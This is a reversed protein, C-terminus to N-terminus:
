VERHRDGPGFERRGGRCQGRLYRLLLPPPHQRQLRLFPLCAPPWPPRHGGDTYSRKVNYTVANAVANWM